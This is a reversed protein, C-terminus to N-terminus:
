TVLRQRFRRFATQLGLSIYIRINSSLAMLGFMLRPTRTGNSVNGTDLFEM